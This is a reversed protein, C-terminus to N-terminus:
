YGDLVRAIKEVQTLEPVVFLPALALELANHITNELHEAAERGLSKLDVTMPLSIEISIGEATIYTGFMTGPTMCKTEIAM